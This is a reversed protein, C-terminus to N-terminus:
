TRAEKYVAPIAALCGLMLWYAASLNPSNFIPNFMCVVFGMACILFVTHFIWQREISQQHITAGVDRLARWLVGGLSVMWCFFAILGGNALVDLPDSHTPLDQTSMAVEFLDFHEVASKTFLNGWVPSSLFKGWAIGYMHMRYGTNGSPLYQEFYVFLYAMLGGGLVLATLVAMLWTVRTLGDKIAVFRVRIVMLLLYAFVGLALMFSTIKNAAVAVAAAVGFALLKLLVSRWVFLPVVLLPYVLHERNHFVELQRFQIGQRVAAFLAVLLLIVLMARLLRFPQDSNRVYWYSLPTLLVYVGMTLFTEDIHNRYKAYLSGGIVMVAFVMLFRFDYGASRLSVYRSRARFLMRSVLIFAFNMVLFVTPIRKLVPVLELHWGMPDVAWFSVLLFTFLFYYDTMQLGADARLNTVLLPDRQMAPM